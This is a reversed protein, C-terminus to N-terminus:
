YSESISLIHIKSTHYYSPAFICISLILNHYNNRYIKNYQYSKMQFHKSSIEQLMILDSKRKKYTAAKGYVPVSKTMLISGLLISM